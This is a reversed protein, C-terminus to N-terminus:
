KFLSLIFTSGASVLAAAPITLVWATIISRVVPWNISKFSKAGGVGMISSVAVHTTSSPMGLYSAVVNVTGGAIGAAFGDVPELETIKYGVTRVVRAGGLITGLGISAGGLLTMWWM